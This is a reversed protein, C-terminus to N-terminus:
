RIPLRCRNRSPRPAPVVLPHRELSDGCGAMMLASGPVRRGAGTRRGTRENGRRTWRAGSLDPTAGSTIQDKQEESSM